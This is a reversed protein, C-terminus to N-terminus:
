FCYQENPCTNCDGNCFNKYMMQKYNITNDKNFIAVDYTKIIYELSYKDKYIDCIENYYIREDIPESKKNYLYMFCFYLSLNDKYKSLFEKSTYNVLENIFFNNTYNIKYIHLDEITHLYTMM